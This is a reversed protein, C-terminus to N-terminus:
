TRSIQLTKPDYKQLKCNIVEEKAKTTLPSREVAKWGYSWWWKVIIVEVEGAVEGCDGVLELGTLEEVPRVDMAEEGFWLLFLVGLGHQWWVMVAECGHGNKKVERRRLVLSQHQWSGVIDGSSDVGCIRTLVRDERATVAAWRRRWVLWSAVM